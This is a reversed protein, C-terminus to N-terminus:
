YLFLITLNWTTMCKKKKKYLRYKKDNNIQQKLDRCKQYLHLFHGSKNHHLKYRKYFYIKEVQHAM